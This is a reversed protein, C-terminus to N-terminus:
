TPFVARRVVIPLPIVKSECESYLYRQWELEAPNNNSIGIRIAWRCFHVNVADPDTNRLM